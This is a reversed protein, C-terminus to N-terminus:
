DAERPLPETPGAERIITPLMRLLDPLDTTVTEWILHFDLDAYNHAIRNRMSLMGRWRIDAYRAVFEKHDRVLKTAAEGVNILNMAVAEQTKTDALFDAESMGEVYTVARNAAELMQALLVSRATLSM